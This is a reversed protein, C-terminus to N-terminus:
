YHTSFTRRPIGARSGAGNWRYTRQAAAAAATNTEVGVILAHLTPGHLHQRQQRPGSSDPYSLFRVQCAM